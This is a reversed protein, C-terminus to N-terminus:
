RDEATSYALTDGNHPDARTNVCCIDDVSCVLLVRSNTANPDTNWSEIVSYIFVGAVLASVCAVLTWFVSGLIRWM